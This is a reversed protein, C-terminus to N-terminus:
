LVSDSYEPHLGIWSAAYSCIPTVKLGQQKASEMVQKMLQGAAGTGRLEKPAEVYDIFLTKNQQRYNAFAVFDGVRYEFREKDVNDTFSNPM